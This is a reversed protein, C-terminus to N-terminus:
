PGRSTAPFYDIRNRERPGYRLDLHQAHMAAFATSRRDWEAVIAASDRVAASNNYAADLAARDMGRYLQQTPMAPIRTVSSEDKAFTSSGM